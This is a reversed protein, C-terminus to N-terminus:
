GQGPCVRTSTNTTNNITPTFPCLHSVVPASVSTPSVTRAFVATSQLPFDTHITVLLDSLRVLQSTTLCPSHIPQHFLTPKLHNNSNNPHTSPHLFSIISPVSLAKYACEGGQVVDDSSDDYCGHTLCCAATPAECRCRMCSYPRAERTM